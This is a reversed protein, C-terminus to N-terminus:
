FGFNIRAGGLRTSGSVRVRGGSTSIRATTRGATITTNANIRVNNRKSKIVQTAINTRTRVQGPNRKGSSLISTLLARLAM